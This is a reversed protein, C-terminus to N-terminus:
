HLKPEKFTRQLVEEIEEASMATPPGSAMKDKEDGLLNPLDSQLEGISRYVHIDGPKYSISCIDTNKVIWGNAVQEILITKM